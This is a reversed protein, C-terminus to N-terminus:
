ISLGDTWITAERPTFAAAGPAGDFRAAIHGALVRADEGVGDIFASHRRRQFHMGLVYLGAVPTVGGRQRIEGAEDLVPVRLWPYRRRFGTAWIVTHIGAAQLDVTTRTLDFAAPWTPAFPEADPVRGDNGTRRIFEDIRTLTQALKIDSAVSTAILDDDFLAREGDVAELRGLVRVGQQRLVSIDLRQVDSRGVLQLSPQRRSARIDFVGDVPDRLIGMADLWWLVDRGRYTRPMRQHAGAALTVPRGSAHVEAAIQIGTASAGVVLVGGPPLQGLNRYVTPVVQVARPTLRAAASPVSPVDSYGTAIV